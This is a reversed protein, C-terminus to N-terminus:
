TTKGPIEWKVENFCEQVGSAWLILIENLNCRNEPRELSNDRLFCAFLQVCVGLVWRKGTNQCVTVTARWELVRNEVTGCMM